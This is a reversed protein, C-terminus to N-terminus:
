RQEAVSGDIPMSYFSVSGAENFSLEDYVLGQWVVGTVEPVRVLLPGTAPVAVSRFPTGDAHIQLARLPKFIGEVARRVLSHPAPTFDAVVIEDDSGAPVDIPQGSELQVQEVLRAEGCRHRSRELMTWADIQLVLRFSCVLQLQYHPSYWARNRGDLAPDVAKLVVQDRPSRALSRANLRDLEETVAAYLQFVPVPHHNLQYAWAINAEWPDVYVPRRGVESVIEDPIVYEARAQSVADTTRQEVYSPNLMGDAVARWRTTATPVDFTSLPPAGLLLCIAIVVQSSRSSTGRAHCISVFAVAAVLAVGFFIAEHSDHRTFGSKVAFLMVGASAALVGLRTSLSLAPALAALQRVILGLVLVLGVYGLVIPGYELSMAEGYGHVTEMSGWVWEPINGVRQGALLWFGLFSAPVAVAGILLREVILRPRGAFVACVGVLGLIAVGNSFKVLVVLSGVVCLAVYLATTRRRDEGPPSVLLGLALALSTGVVANAPGTAFASAVIVVAIVAAWLGPVLKRMAVFALRWTWIGVALLAVVSLVFRGRSVLVPTDLFGLPGYNFIIDDGHQLWGVSGNIVARWSNDLGPAPPTTVIGVAFFVAALCAVLSLPDIREKVQRLHARVRRANSM